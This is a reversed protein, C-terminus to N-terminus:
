RHMRESIVSRLSVPKGSSERRIFPDNHLVTMVIIRRDLLLFSAQFVIM